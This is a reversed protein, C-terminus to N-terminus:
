AICLSMLKRSSTMGPKVGFGTDNQIGAKEPIVHRTEILTTMYLINDFFIGLYDM